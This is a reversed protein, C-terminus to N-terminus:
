IVIVQDRGARKAQYLAEDAAALLEELSSVQSDLTKVGISVTIHHLRDATPTPRNSVQNRLREAVQAAQATNSEPLLIVFEEGGYRGLIDVDRIYQRCQETLARLVQDGEAHGYQDNIEKFHDIDIM